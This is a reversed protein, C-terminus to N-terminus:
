RSIQSVWRKALTVRGATTRLMERSAQGTSAVGLITEGLNIVDEEGDTIKGSEVREEDDVSIHEPALLANQSM